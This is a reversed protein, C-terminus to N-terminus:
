KLEITRLSVWPRIVVLWLGVDKMLLALEHKSVGRRNKYARKQKKLNLRHDCSKNQGPETSRSENPGGTHQKKLQNKDKAVGVRM